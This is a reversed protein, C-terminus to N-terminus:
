KFNYLKRRIDVKPTYRNDNMWTPQIKLCTCNLIENEAISAIWYPFCHDGFEVHTLNDHYEWNGPLWPHGFKVKTRFFGSPHDSAM